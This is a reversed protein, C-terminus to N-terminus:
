KACPRLCLLDQSIAALYVSSHNLVSYRAKDSANIYQPDSGPFEFM